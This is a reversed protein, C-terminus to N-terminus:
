PRERVRPKRKRAEGNQNVATASKIAADETTEDKEEEEPLVIEPSQGMARGVTKKYIWM